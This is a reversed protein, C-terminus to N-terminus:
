AATFEGKAGRVNTDAVYQPQGDVIVIDGVGLGDPATALRPDATIYRDFQDMIENFGWYTSVISRDRLFAPDYDRIVRMSLGDHSARAGYTVGAPIEPALSSLVGWTPHLAFIANSDILQSTVITFGALRGLQAERFANTAASPDMTVLKPSNLFWGEVDTGVLLYRNSAPTGQKNLLARAALAYKYPDGDEAAAPLAPFHAANLAAVLKSEFRDRVAEMQPLLIETGFSTVDMTLEEDTLPVGSYMHNNLKISASTRYIEDLVIPANRTRWEYDRAQTIGKTKWVVVTDDAANKFNEGSFRTVLNPLVLERELAAIALGVYKEAKIYTNFGQRNGTPAM